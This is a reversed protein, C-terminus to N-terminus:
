IFNVPPSELTISCFRRGCRKTQGLDAHHYLYGRLQHGDWYLLGCDISPPHRYNWAGGGTGDFLLDPHVMIMALAAGLYPNGGFKRTASFGILIPLFVFPANAFLNIIGAWDAMGPYMEVLSKAGFLNQATLVNNIGMLLGGAVIAPIIPVFIDSLAKVFRQLLNMKAAGAEKVDSTSMEGLGTLAAFEGYVTNVTGAGLIIQYQGGTSFTGKVADMQDLAKQDIKSDDELVLRLRTACHAAATVNQKGGIAQLIDEAVQKHDM